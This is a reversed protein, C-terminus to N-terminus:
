GVPIQNAAFLVAEGIAPKPEVHTEPDDPVCIVPLGTLEALLPPNGEESFDDSDARYGNVVIAAIILGRSRAAQVTLLTHNITGLTSAAVILLPLETSNFSEALDLVTLKETLPVLLGGIGEVIVFDSDAAIQSYAEGITGFNIPQKTRRAAALPCVPDGYRVPNITALNHMSEASWALFEADASVLDAGPLTRGDIEEDMFQGLIKGIGVGSVHRCGTAIPKLVGVRKGARRQLMAIAGAIVTKGIGTDTATVFVGPKGTRPILRILPNASQAAGPENV